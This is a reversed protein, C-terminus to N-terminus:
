NKWFAKGEDIIEYIKKMDLHRRLNEALADFQKERLQACEKESLGTVQKKLGTRRDCLNDEDEIDLSLYPIMGVVPIGAIKELLLKVEDFLELRGMCKNVVIAKVSQKENEDFLALTGIVSAFMGGRDIDAVLVVPSDVRRSMNMNAVDNEKMNMEVPSGAGELILFDYRSSLRQYAEMIHPWAQRRKFDKYEHSSMQGISRGNVIVETIGNVPKLLIPNMDCSPEIECAWAAIAQAKAMELGDKLVHSNLSMNQSKFPAVAYGDQHLIRCLGIALISKGVGSATGQIMLSKTM